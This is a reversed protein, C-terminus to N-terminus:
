ALADERQLDLLIRASIELGVLAADFAPDDRADEVMRCAYAVTTRDRGFGLGVGVLSLGYIVHALYIGVHRARTVRRSSRRRAVVQSLPVDYHSAALRAALRCCVADGLVAREREAGPRDEPPRREVAFPRPLNETKRSENRMRPDHM